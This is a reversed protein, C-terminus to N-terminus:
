KHIDGSGSKSMSIQNSILKEINIDASGSASVSVHNARGVLKIDAGGSASVSLNDSVNLTIELDSGGSASLKCNDTRLNKIDCDSGGSTSIITTGSIALNTIHIDTGGSANLQFKDGQLNDIYLDVGGSLSAEELVPASIFVKMVQKKANFISAIRNDELELILTEKEVRTIIKEIAVNEVEVSLSQSNNQTFYVDLGSSAKIKRFTGVKRNEKVTDALGTQICFLSTVFLLLTAIKTKM